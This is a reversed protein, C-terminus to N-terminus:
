FQSTQLKIEPHKCNAVAVSQGGHGFAAVTQAIFKRKPAGKLQEATEKLLKKLSDTLQLSV